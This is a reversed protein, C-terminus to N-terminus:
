LSILICTGATFTPTDLNTAFPYFDRVTLMSHTYNCIYLM